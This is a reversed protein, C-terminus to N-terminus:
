ARGEGQGKFTSLDFTLISISLALAIEYKIAITINERDHWLKLSIQLRFPWSRARSRYFPDLDFWFISISLLYAVEYRIVININVRGSVMKSNKATSSATTLYLIHWDFAMHSKMNTPLLLTQWIQWLKRSIVLQFTCSMSRSHTLTLHLYINFDFPLIRNLIQRCINPKTTVTQLINM